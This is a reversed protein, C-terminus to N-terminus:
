FTRVRGEMTDSGLMFSTRQFEFQRSPVKPERGLRTVSNNVVSQLEMASIAVYSLVRYHTKEVSSGELMSKAGFIQDTLDTRVPPSIGGHSALACWVQPSM